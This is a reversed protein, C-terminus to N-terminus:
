RVAPSFGRGELAFQDAIKRIAKAVFLLDRAESGEKTLALPIVSLAFALFLIL